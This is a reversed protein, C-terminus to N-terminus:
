TRNPDDSNDRRDDGGSTAADRPRETVPVARVRRSPYLTIRALAEQDVRPKPEAHYAALEMLRMVLGM